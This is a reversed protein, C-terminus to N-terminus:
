NAKLNLSASGPLPPLSASAEAVSLAHVKKAAAKVMPSADTTEIQRLRALAEPTSRGGLAEVAKARVTEDSDQTLQLLWVVPDIDSRQVILPIISVRVEPKPDCIQRGLFIQDKGLGRAKLVVEALEPLGPEADHLRRLIADDSLVARRAALTKLTHSRVSGSEPDDIYPAALAAMADIPSSGVCIVAALRGKADRDGLRRVAPERFAEKWDALTDEEAPTMSRGPLWGWLQGLETLATGRVEVHNDAIAATLVAHSPELAETWCAPSPEVRLRNLTRTTTLVAAVRGVPPLKVYGARFGNLVAVWNKAEIDTLPRPAEGDKITSLEFAAKFADSDGVSLAAALTQVAQEDQSTVAVSAKADRPSKTATRGNLMWGAGALTVAVTGAVAVTTWRRAIM